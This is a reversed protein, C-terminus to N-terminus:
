TNPDLFSLCRVLHELVRVVFAIHLLSDSAHWTNVHGHRGQGHGHRCKSTKDNNVISFANEEIAQKSLSETLLIRIM